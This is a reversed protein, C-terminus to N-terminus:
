FIDLKRRKAVVALEGFTDDEAFLTSEAHTRKRSAPPTVSGESPPSRPSIAELSANLMALKRFCGSAEGRTRVIHLTMKLIQREQAQRPTECEEPEIEPDSEGKTSDDKPSDELSPQKSFKSRRGRKKLQGTIRNEDVSQM